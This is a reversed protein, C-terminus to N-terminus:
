ENFKKMEENFKSYIHDVDMGMAIYKFGMKKLRKADNGDVAFVGPIKNYKKCVNLVQYRIEEIQKSNIDGPIGLSQSMDYPGLFIVDIGTVQAIEDINELSEQSECQAIITTNKNAYDIYEKLDVAGYDGARPSGMGRTGEPFYKSYKVINGADRATGVQPAQIGCAGLDLINVISSGNIDPIRVIASIGRREAALLMSLLGKTDVHGHEMDLIVFDYGTVGAIEITETADIAIFMGLCAKNLALKEKLNNKM